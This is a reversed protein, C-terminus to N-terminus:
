VSRFRPLRVAVLAVLVACAGANLAVALPAGLAVSAAGMELSGFPTSGIALTLAGMARGRLQDTAASLVITTQLSSFAAQGLGSIGLLVLALEFSGSAAFGVLCLSMVCSGVWLLMGSRPIRRSSAIATAGVLSGIGTAASLAGLGVPDVNFQDRAFIPLLQQYPFVLVNMFTSILLVGVVPQSSRLTAFGDRLYRLMPGTSAQRARAALPMLKLLAIEILYLAAMCAFAVAPNWYAVLAGAILPGVIRTLNMSVAELAIANVTLDRGVLDPILARRTPWDVAWQIGLLFTTLAAFGFSFLGFALLLAVATCVFLALGQAGILVWRRDVRDAAAGGAMGFMLLPLWRLAELVALDWASNTMELVVWGLVIRDM